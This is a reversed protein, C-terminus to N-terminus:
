HPASSSKLDRQSGLGYGECGLDPTPFPPHGPIQNSFEFKGAWASMGLGGPHSEGSHEQLFSTLRFPVVKGRSCGGQPNSNIRKTGKLDWDILKEHGCVARRTRSLCDCDKWASEGKEPFKSWAGLAPLWHTLLVGAWSVPGLTLRPRWWKSGAIQPM